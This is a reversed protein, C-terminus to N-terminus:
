RWALSALARRTARHAGVHAPSFVWHGGRRTLVQAGFSTKFRYLGHQPDNPEAASDSAGGLNYVRFGRERLLLIIRWHLWAAAGVRYGAPTSGGVVYFAQQNAWGILVAGLPETGFAAFVTTGWGPGPEGVGAKIAATPLTPEFSNGRQSGRAAAAGQVTRLLSVADNGTVARLTWGSLEARRIHRRHQPALRQELEQSDADLRVLFELRDETGNLAATHPREWGAAFSDVTLEAAGLKRVARVLEGLAANPEVGPAFAPLTPFHVHRTGLSLRCRRRVGVAIGATRDGLLYRAYLPEGEGDAALLGLPSHFFRGDCHAMLEGWDPPCTSEFSWIHDM